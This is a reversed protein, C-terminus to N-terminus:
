APTKGTAVGASMAALALSPNKIEIKMRTITATNAKM